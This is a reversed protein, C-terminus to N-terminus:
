VREGRVSDLLVGTMTFFRSKEYIEINGKRNRPGPIRGKIIIHVGKGSPSLETYSNLSEIIDFAWPEIVGTEPDRCKDLDIGVYPDNPSFTYGIGEFGHDGNLYAELANDFSTWAAPDTSDGNRGDLRFPPKTLKGDRAITKWNVWQRRNCLDSPINNSQVPLWPDSM